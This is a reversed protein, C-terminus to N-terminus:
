QENDIAKITKITREKANQDVFQKIQTESFQQLFQGKKKTMIYETIEASFKRGLSIMIRNYGLRYKLINSYNENLLSSDIAKRLVSMDKKRQPFKVNSNPNIWNHLTQENKIGLGINMLSQHLEDLSNFKSYYIKLENKWLKSYDEIKTFEGDSDFHLAVQYLEEKSSNDYIRIKDGIALNKVKEFREQHNIKLLVTKNEDLEICETDNEFTLVRCINTNYSESYDPNIKSEEEQGFLRKILEDVNEVQETEKFSIESIEKRQSNRLENYTENKLRQFCNEFYEDEQPYLLINIKNSNYMMSKLHNYGFFGLFLITKNKVKLQNFEKFSIINKVKNNRLEDNWFDCYEKPVVLYDIKQFEKIEEFKSQSNKKCDIFIKFKELIESWVDKYDYEGIEDLATGVIDEGEKEFYMLTNELQSILRSKQSPIIIPLVNRVFKYLEKLNIGYDNEAKNVVKDFEILSKSFPLDEVLIKNIPFTEFYNFYDLEPLTWKWKLLNPIANDPFDSSGVFLCNEIKNNNLDESIELYHEKYKNEGIFTINRISIGKELIHKRATEYDNVIYIMPDIPINDTEKGSKAVYRFPFAKHIKEGDIEYAKLEEVISKDTVIVSKYKFKSPLYKIDEKIISAFFTKYLDFKLKVQQNKLDANTIIYTKIANHSIEGSSKTIIGKKKNEWEATYTTGNKSVIKKRVGDKQIIDGKNFVTTDDIYNDTFNYIALTFIVPLYFQSKTDGNPIYILTNKKNKKDKITQHILYSNVLEFNEFDLKEIDFYAELKKESFGVLVELYKNVDNM